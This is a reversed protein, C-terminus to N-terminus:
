KEILSKQKKLNIYKQKYKLYKKNWAIKIQGPQLVIHEGIDGDEMDISINDILTNNMSLRNIKINNLIRDFFLIDLKKIKEMLLNYQALINKDLIHLEIYKVFLLHLSFFNIIKNWENEDFMSKIKSINTDAIDYNINMIDNNLYNHFLNSTYKNELHTYINKFIQIDNINQPIIINIIEIREIKDYLNIYKDFYYRYHEFVSTDMHNYMNVINLAIHIYLIYKGFTDIIDFELCKNNMNIIFDIIQVHNKYFNIPHNEIIINDRNPDDNDSVVIYLPMHDSPIDVMINNKDSDIIKWCNVFDLIRKKKLGITPTIFFPAIIDRSFPSKKYTFQYQINTNTSTYPSWLFKDGGVPQYFGKIYNKSIYFKDYAGASDKDGRDAVKSTNTPTFSFFKKGMIQRNLKTRCERNDYIVINSIDANNFDGCIIYLHDDMLNKDIINNLSNCQNCKKTLHVNLLHLKLAVNQYYFCHFDDENIEHSVDYHTNDLLIDKKIAIILYTLGVIEGSMKRVRKQMKKINYKNQTVIDFIDIFRLTGEQFFYIDANFNYCFYVQYITFIDRFKEMAEKQNTYALHQQEKSLNVYHEDVLFNDYFAGMVNFNFIDYRM